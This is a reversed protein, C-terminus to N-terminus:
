KWDTKEKVPVYVTPTGNSNFKSDHGNQSRKHWNSLRRGIEWTKEMELRMKTKSMNPESWYDYFARLTDKPYDDIFGKLEEYFIKQREALALKSNIYKSEKIDKFGEINKDEKATTPKSTSQQNITPQVSTENDQYTDWNCITIVSYKNTSKITIQQSSQLNAIATRVQQESLGTEEALSKRGVVIQGPKLKEKKWESEKRNTKLLIHIFVRFTPLHDYWEWELMRRHLKIWGIM